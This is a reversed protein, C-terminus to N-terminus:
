DVSVLVLLNLSILVLLVWRGTFLLIYSILFSQHTNSNLQFFHQICIPSAVLLLCIGVLALESGCMRGIWDIWDLLGWRIYVFM